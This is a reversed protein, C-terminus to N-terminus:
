CTCAVLFSYVETGISKINCRINAKVPFQPLSSREAVEGISSCKRFNFYVSQSSIEVCYCCVNNHIKSIRKIWGNIDSLNESRIIMMKMVLFEM